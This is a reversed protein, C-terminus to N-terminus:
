NAGQRELLGEQRPFNSRPPFVALSLALPEVGGGKWPNAQPSGDILSPSCGFRGETTTIFSFSSVRAASPHSNRAGELHDWPIGEVM